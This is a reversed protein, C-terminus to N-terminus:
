HIRQKDAASSAGWHLDVLSFRGVPYLKKQKSGLHSNGHRQARKPAPARRLVNNELAVLQRSVQPRDVLM